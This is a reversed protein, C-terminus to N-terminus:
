GGSRGERRNNRRTLEEQLRDAFAARREQSMAAIQLLLADQASQQIMATQAMQADMLIELRTQDFPDARLAAIMDQANGSLDVARLGADRRMARGVARREEPALARAVPGLGFDFSRPPHDGFRGSFGAGVVMGVIALNLALSLVLVVRWLRSPGSKSLQENDM